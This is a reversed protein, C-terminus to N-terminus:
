YHSGLFGHHQIDSILYQHPELATGLFCGISGSHHGGFFIKKQFILLISQKSFVFSSVLLGPLKLLNCILCFFLIQDYKEPNGVLGAWVALWEILFGSSLFFFFFM